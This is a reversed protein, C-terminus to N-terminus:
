IGGFLDDFNLDIINAKPKDQASTEATENVEGCLDITMHFKVTAGSFYFKVAKNYVELDSISNGIGNAIHNLCDSLTKDSDIIAQSFEDDQKCFCILADAVAKKIASAKTSLKKAQKLEEKIKTIAESNM